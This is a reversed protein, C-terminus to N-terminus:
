ETVDLSGEDKKIKFYSVQELLEDSMEKVKVNEESVINMSHTIENIGQGIEKMGSQVNSSIKTVTDLSEFVSATNDDIIKANNAVIESSEAVVTVATIIRDNDSSISSIGDEIQNFADVTNEVEDKIQSFKEETNNFLENAETFKSLIEKISIDIRKSEISSQEALKRVEDAVVTFGAGVDGAHAAEIAANMALLNTQAAIKKIVTSISQIDKISKSIEQIDQTTKTILDKGEDSVNILNKVDDNKAKALHSISMISKTMQEILGSSSSIVGNQKDFEINFSKISEATQNSKEFADSIARDLEDVQNSISSVNENIEHAAAATEQTSASLESISESTVDTSKITKALVLHLKFKLKKLSEFIKGIEDKKIKGFEFLFDGSEMMTVRENLRTIDRNVVVNTRLVFYISTFFLLGVFAFAIILRLSLLRSDSEEFDLIAQQLLASITEFSFTVNRMQQDFENYARIINVDLNQNNLLIWNAFRTTNSEVLVKGAVGESNLAATKLAEFNKYLNDLKFGFEQYLFPFKNLLADDFDEDIGITSTFSQLAQAQSDLQQRNNLYVDEFEGIVGYASDKLMVEFARSENIFNQVQEVELSTADSSALVFVATGILLLISSAFLVAVTLLRTKITM